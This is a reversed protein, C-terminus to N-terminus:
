AALSEEGVPSNINVAFDSFYRGSTGPKSKAVPVMIREGGSVKLIKDPRSLRATFANGQYVNDQLKPVFFKEVLGTISDYTLAM